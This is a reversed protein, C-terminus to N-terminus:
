IIETYFDNGAKLILDNIIEAAQETYCIVDSNFIHFDVINDPEKGSNICTAHHTLRLSNLDRWARISDRLLKYDIFKGSYLEMIRELTSFGDIGYKLAYLRIIGTLPMILKKIDTKKDSKTNVSPRFQKWASAMHHFYIDNTRLDNRVYERLEESLTADGFCFRFDFFISIELIEDPGPIRIWDSFYNKWKSLPQCWLPNGAMKNGICYRFGTESLMDNVKKGLSVFYEHSEILRKGECNEFIIANDQDTSLTQEGRGASGTQIFAFRCPPNDSRELCLTLVRRCIADAVASIFQVVSYPDAHGIIMSISLKQTDLFVDHLMKSSSALEIERFLIAPASFFADSLEQHTILGSIKKEDSIVFLSRGPCSNILRFADCLASRSSIYHPPSNMWRFIETGPSGGEDLKYGITATDAVGIPQGSEDTILVCSTNHEKMLALVETAFLTERCNVPTRMVSSVPKKMIYSASFASIDVIPQNNKLEAGPLQEITGECWIEQSSSEVVMLNLIAWFEIDDKRKLLVERETIREKLELARRFARMQANNVFFSGVTHPLLEQMNNFGLMNLVPKTAFLFRNKKGYSIRFFGTSIEDLLSKDPAIDPRHDVSGSPRIVVLVGRSDGLLIRSFDAHSMLITGKKSRLACEVYRRSTLEEYLTEIDDLGPLEPSILIDRIKIGALEEDNYGLWSLLTKNAQIGGASLIIVGESAAEALTKYLERSKHLEEEARSRKKEINHSQKSIVVLLIIIVIGILGSIVFAGFELKRIESRVDEIYIGTGIIWGWPEFLRVYSLKPVIRTTDDNWQWMYEVYNEGEDSVANVFEVFIAKGGSDKYGTLDTGNLEPRYPHVIMRPYRDTIWFYDKLEGGYRIKGIASRAEERAKEGDIIGQVELSHYYDLLSYASATIEHILNRKREMMTKEFGPILYFFILGAFLAFAFLAPLDIKLFFIRGSKKGAPHVM